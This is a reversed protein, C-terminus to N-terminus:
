WHVQAEAPTCQMGLMKDGAKELVAAPTQELGSGAARGVEGKWEKASASGKYSCHLFHMTWM